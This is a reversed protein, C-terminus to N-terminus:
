GFLTGQVVAYVHPFITDVFPSLDVWFQLLLSELEWWAWLELTSELAGCLIVIM